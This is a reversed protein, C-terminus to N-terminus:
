DLAYATIIWCEERYIEAVVKLTAHNVTKEFAFVIGGHTGSRLRTKRDPASVVAAVSDANLERLAQRAAGHRTYHFRYAM